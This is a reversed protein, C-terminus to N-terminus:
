DKKNGDDEDDDFNKWLYERPDRMETNALTGLEMNLKLQKAITDRYEALFDNYKTVFHNYKDKIKKSKNRYFVFRKTTFFVVILVILLSLSVTIIIWLQRENEIKREFREKTLQRQYEVIKMQYQELMKDLLDKLKILEKSQVLLKEAYPLYELGRNTTSYIKFLNEYSRHREIELVPSNNVQESKIFYQEAKKINNTSLKLEGLNNYVVKVYKFEEKEPSLSVAQLYYEEAKVMDEQKFYSYGINNLIDGELSIQNGHERNIKYAKLYYERSLEYDGLEHLYLIGMLNNVTSVQYMNGMGYYYDIARYYYHLASDAQHLKRKSIGIMKIFYAMNLTDQQNEAYTLANSYYVQASEYHGVKFYINGIATLCDMIRNQYNEKLSIEWANFYDILALDIKKQSEYIYGMIYYGDYLGKQYEIEKAKEIITNAIDLAKEQDVSNYEYALKYLKDIKEISVEQALLIFPNILIISILLSNLKM